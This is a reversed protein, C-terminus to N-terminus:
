AEQLDEVCAYNKAPPQALYKQMQKNARAIEREIRAAEYKKFDLTTKDELEITSIFKRHNTNKTQMSGFVIYALLAAGPIILLFSSSGWQEEDLVKGAIEKAMLQGSVFLMPVILAIVILSFKLKM